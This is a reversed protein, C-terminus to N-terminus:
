RNGGGGGGGGNGGGGNGEGGGDGGNGQGGKSSGEMGMGGSAQSGQIGSPADEAKTEEESPQKKECDPCHRNRFMRSRVGTPDHNPHKGMGRIDTAFFNNTEPIHTGWIRVQRDPKLRKPLPAIDTYVTLVRDPAVQLTFSGRERDVNLVTGRIMEAGAPAPALIVTLLALLVQRSHKNQLWM